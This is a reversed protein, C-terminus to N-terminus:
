LATAIVGATAIGATKEGAVEAELDRPRRRVGGGVFDVEVHFRDVARTWERTLCTDEAPLRVFAAIAVDAVAVELVIVDLEQNEM